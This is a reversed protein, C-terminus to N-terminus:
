IKRKEKARQAERRQVEAVRAEITEKDRKPINRGRTSKKKFCHLVYIVDDVRATYVARYTDGDDDELIEVLPLGFGTLTKADEYPLNNQALGLAFGFTRRVEVPMALLDKKSSGIWDVRKENM